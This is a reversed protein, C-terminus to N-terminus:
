VGLVNYTGVYFFLVFKTPNRARKDTDDMKYNKYYTVDGKPLDGGGKQTPSTM